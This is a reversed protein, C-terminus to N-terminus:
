LARETMITANSQLKWKWECVAAVKQGIKRLVKRMFMLIKPSM